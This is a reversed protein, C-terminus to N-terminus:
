ILALIILLSSGLDSYEIGPSKEARSELPLLTISSDNLAKLRSILSALPFLSPIFPYPM